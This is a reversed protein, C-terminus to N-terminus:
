NTARKHRGENSHTAEKDHALNNNSYYKYDVRNKKNYNYM